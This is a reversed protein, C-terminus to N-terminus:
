GRRAVVKKRAVGSFGVVTKEACIRPMSLAFFLIIIPLV